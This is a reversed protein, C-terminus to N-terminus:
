AALARRVCAIMDVAKFPKALLYFAGCVGARALIDPDSAATILVVPMTKQYDDLARKLAIGSIGPLRIDTIVLRARGVEGSALFDEASAHASVTYGLLRILRAIAARLSDDDDIVSILTEPAVGLGDRAWAPAPIM